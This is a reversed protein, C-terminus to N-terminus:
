GDRVVRTGAARDHLGRRWPDFFVPLYIALWWLPAVGAITDSPSLFLVEPLVVRVFSQAWSPPAARGDTTVVRISVARKGITRGWTALQPIEYIAELAGAAIIRGYGDITAFVLLQPVLTVLGDVLRALFRQGFSAADTAVAREGASQDVDPAM